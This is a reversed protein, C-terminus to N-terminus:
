AIINTAYEKVQVDTFEVNYVISNIRMMCVQLEAMHVWPGDKLSEQIYIMDWSYILKLM